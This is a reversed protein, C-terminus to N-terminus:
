QGMFTGQTSADLRRAVGGAREGARLARQAEKGAYTLMPVLDCVAVWKAAYLVQRLIYALCEFAEIFGEGL